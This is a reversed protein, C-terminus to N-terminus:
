TLCSSPFNAKTYLYPGALGGGERVGERVGERGGERWKEENTEEQKETRKRGRKKLAEGLQQCAPKEKSM